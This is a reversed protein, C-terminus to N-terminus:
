IEDDDSLHTDLLANYEETLDIVSNAQIEDRCRQNDDNM